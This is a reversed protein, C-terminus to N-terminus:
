VCCMSPDFFDTFSGKSETLFQDFIAADTNKGSPYYIGFCDFWKGDTLMITLIKVLNRHKHYSYSLWSVDM